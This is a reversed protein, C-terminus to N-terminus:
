HQKELTPLEPIEPPPNWGDDGPSVIALPKLWEAPPKADPSPSAGPRGYGYGLILSASNVRAQAPANPDRAIQVLVAIAEPARDRALMVLDAHDLIELGLEKGVLRALTSKNKSGKPRGARKRSGGHPM